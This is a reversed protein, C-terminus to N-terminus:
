LSCGFRSNGSGAPQSCLLVRLHSVGKERAILQEIQAKGDGAENM